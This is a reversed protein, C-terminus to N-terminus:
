GASCSGASACSVSGTFAGGDSNLAATGPVEAAARWTGSVENAVFAQGRGSRDTYQGGAACNGAAACSVSGTSADGGKNLAATGPVEAAARWTGSGENAVFAQRHRSSDTYFGGAGCNGASACSVPGAIAMGGANLIGTGPVEEASGWAGGSSVDAAGVTLPMLLAAGIVAAIVAFKRLPSM